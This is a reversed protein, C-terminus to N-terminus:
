SLALTPLLSLSELTVQPMRTIGAPPLQEWLPVPPFKELSSVGGGLTNMITLFLSVVFAQSNLERLTLFSLPAM